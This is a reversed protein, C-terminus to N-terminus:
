ITLNTRKLQQLLIAFKFTLTNLPRTLHELWYKRQIGFVLCFEGQVSTFDIELCYNVNCDRYIQRDTVQHWKGDFWLFVPTKECLNGCMTWIYKALNDFACHLPMVNHRRYDHSYMEILASSENETPITQSLVASLFQQFQVSCNLKWLQSQLQQM